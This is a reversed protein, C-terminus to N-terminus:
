PSITDQETHLVDSRLMASLCEAMTRHGEATLSVAADGSERFAARVLAAHELVTIWRHGTSTALDASASLKSALLSRPHAAYLQLLMDWAPESVLERPLFRDRARRM